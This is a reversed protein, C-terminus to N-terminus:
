FIELAKDLAVSIDSEDVSIKESDKSTSEQTKDSDIIDIGFYQLLDHIEEKSLESDILSDKMPNLEYKYRSVQMLENYQKLYIKSAESSDTLINYGKRKARSKIKKAEKINESYYDRFHGARKSNYEQVNIKSIDFKPIYGLVTRRKDLVKDAMKEFYRYTNSLVLQECCYKFSNEIKLNDYVCNFSDFDKFAIFVKDGMSAFSEEKNKFGAYLSESDLLKRYVKTDKILALLKDPNDNLIAELALTMYSGHLSVKKDEIMFSVLNNQKQIYNNELTEMWTGTDLDFKYTTFLSDTIDVIRHKNRKFAKNYVLGATDRLDTLAEGQTGLYYTALKSKDQEKTWAVLYNLTEKDYAQSSIQEFLSM